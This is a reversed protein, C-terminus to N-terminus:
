AFYAMLKGALCSLIRNVVSSVAETHIPHSAFLAGAVAVFKMQLRGIAFAVRTFLGTCAAHLLVNGVHFWFQQLGLLWNNLRYVFDIFM